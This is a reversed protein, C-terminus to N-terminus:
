DKKKSEEFAKILADIGEPTDIAIHKLTMEWYELLAQCYTRNAKEPHLVSMAKVVRDIDDESYLEM